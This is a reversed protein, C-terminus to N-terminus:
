LAIKILASIKRMVWGPPELLADLEETTQPWECLGMLLMFDVIGNLADWGGVLVTTEGNLSM